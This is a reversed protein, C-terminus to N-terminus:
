GGCVFGKKTHRSSDKYSQTALRESRELRTVADWFRKRGRPGHLDATLEPFTELVRQTTSPGSRATPVNIGHRTAAQVAALVAADDKCQQTNDRGTAPVLVGDDTWVLAIPEAPRSLNAKEHRLEDNVLALRSRASNHWATSGSYSNGAAGYRAANKDIHALLLVSADLERALRTLASMFARVSRRDNENAAYADSANDIIILDHGSALERMEDFAPTLALRRLGSEAAEQALCAGDTGDAITIGAEISDPPLGYEAVIRRLRFRVLDATDELTVFLCRGQIVPLGSWARGAACHAALAAALVSKGSGGHGGLLSVVRRPLLQEVVHRVPAIPEALATAAVRFSLRPTGPVPTAQVLVRRTYDRDTRHANADNGREDSPLTSELVRTM